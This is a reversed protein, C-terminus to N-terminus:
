CEDEFGMSLTKGIHDRLFAPACLACFRLRPKDVVRDDDKHVHEGCGFCTTKNADERRKKTPHAFAMKARDGVDDEDPGEYETFMLYMTIRQKLEDTQAHQLLTEFTPPRSPDKLLQAYACGETGSMSCDLYTSVAKMGDASFMPKADVEKMTKPDELACRLEGLYKSPVTRDSNVSEFRQLFLTHRHRRKDEREENRIRRREPGGNAQQKLAYYTLNNPNAIASAASPRFKNRNSKVPRQEKSAFKGSFQDNYLLKPTHQVIDLYGEQGEIARLFNFQDVWAKLKDVIAFRILPHRMCLRIQELKTKKPLKKPVEIKFSPQQWGDRGFSRGMVTQVFHVQDDCKKDEFKKREPNFCKEGLNNLITSRIRSERVLERLKNLAEQPQSMPRSTFTSPQEDGNIAQTGAVAPTNPQQNSHTALRKPNSAMGNSNASRKVAM